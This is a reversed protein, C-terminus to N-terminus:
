GESGGIFSPRNLAELILGYVLESKYVARLAEFNKVEVFM